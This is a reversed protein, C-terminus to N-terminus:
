KGIAALIMAKVNEVKANPPTSCGTALIFGDGMDRILQRSYNYVEDPTGLTLKAAQVDGKICMHGGLIEKIKYIDTLGDSEFICRAKPMAKFYDLAREWDADMHFNCFVGEEVFMEATEKIFPWVFKEWLKMSYFDPCGRAVAYYVAFPKIARAQNRYNKLNEKQIIEMVAKLKDPMRRMDIMMKAMTRGGSLFDVPHSATIPTYELYGAEAFNKSALPAKSLQTMVEEFNVKLRTALYMDSFAKWGNNIIFDYDEETMLEAEDIQWLADEPLERGPLKVRSYFAFNFISAYMYSMDLGDVDGLANLSKIVTQNSFEVNTCFDSIKVGMHKACFADMMPIVPTRDTNELCIAKKTRIQRENLLEANTKM